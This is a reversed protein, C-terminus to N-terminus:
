RRRKSESIVCKIGHMMCNSCTAQWDAAVHCRQMVDCRVKRARCATCAKVARMCVPKPSQCDELGAQSAKHRNSSSYTSGDLQSTIFGHTNTRMVILQLKLTYSLSEDVDLNSNM